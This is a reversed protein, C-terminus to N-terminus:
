TMLLVFLTKKAGSETKWRSRTQSSRDAKRIWFPDICLGSNSCAGGDCGSPSRSHRVEYRAFWKNTTLRYFHGVEDTQGAGEAM